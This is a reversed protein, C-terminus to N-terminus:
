YKRVILLECHENTEIGHPSGYRAIIERVQRWDREPDFPMPVAKLWFVLSEMDLFRYGVDYEGHAVVECGSEVFARARLHVDHFDEPWEATPDFGMISCINQTNRRGVQQTIFLGGPRLVRVIEKVETPAHRNLVVDFSGESFRLSRANMQEFSVHSVSQGRANAQAVRIMEPDLDIGMGKAFRTALELFIEGGGTGIDLVRDEPHLYRRVVDAYDWPAPAREDRVRSFDWGSREGVSETIRKLDGYNMRETEFLMAVLCSQQVAAV